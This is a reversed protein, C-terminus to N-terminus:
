RHMPSFMCAQWYKGKRKANSGPNILVQHAELCQSAQNDPKPWIHELWPHNMESCTLGKNPPFSLVQAFLFPRLFFLCMAQLLSCIPATNANEEFCIRAFTSSSSQDNHFWCMSAEPFALDPPKPRFNWCGIPQTLLVTLQLGTQPALHFGTM